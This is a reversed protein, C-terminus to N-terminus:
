HFWWRGEAIPNSAGLWQRVVRVGEDAMVKPYRPPLIVDGESVTPKTTCVFYLIFLLGIALVFLHVTFHFGRQKNRYRFQLLKLLLDNGRNSM